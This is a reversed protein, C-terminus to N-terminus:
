NTRYVNLGTSNVEKVINIANVIDADTTVKSLSFRLSSNARHEGLGMALLVHSLKGGTACAAGSSLHLGRVSLQEVMRSADRGPFYINSTNCLRNSQDGNIEVADISSLIGGELLDRLRCLGTANQKIDLSAETAAIGMGIIGPVNETGGRSTNEQHGKLLAGRPSGQQIYLAGIGKPGHFKHASLSLYDCGFVAVDIPHKGPAQVADVHLYAGSKRCMEGIEKIPFIVGTENNALMMSVLTPEKTAMLASALHDLRLRGLSDVSIIDLKAGLGTWHQASELVASHEVASVIIRFNGGNQNGYISFVQSISETACSTFVVEDALKCNLMQAVSERAREVKSRVERGPLHASSPNAYDLLMAESVALRVAESPLTTANNDLYVNM